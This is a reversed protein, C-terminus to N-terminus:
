FADSRIGAVKAFLRFAGGIDAFFRSGFRRDVGRFLVEGLVNDPPVDRLLSPRYVCKVYM